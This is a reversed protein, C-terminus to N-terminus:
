DLKKRLYPMVSSHSYFDGCGPQLSSVPSEGRCDCDDSHTGAGAIQQEDDTMDQPANPDEGCGFTWGAFYEADLAEFQAKTINAVSVCNGPHYAELGQALLVGKTASCIYERYDEVANNWMGQAVQSDYRLVDLAEDLKEALCGDAIYQDILEQGIYAVIERYYEEDWKEGTPTGTTYLSDGYELSEALKRLTLMREELNSAAEAEDWYQQLAKDQYVYTMNIGPKAWILPLTDEAAATTLWDLLQGTVAKGKWDGVAFDDDPDAQLIEDDGPVASGQQNGASGQNSGIQQDPDPMGTNPGKNSVKGEEDDRYDPVADNLDGPLVIGAEPLARFGLVAVLACCSVLVGMRAVLVRQKRKKRKYEDRRRFLAATVEEYNKM